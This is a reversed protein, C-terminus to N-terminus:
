EEVALEGMGLNELVTKVRPKIIAPVDKFTKYGNIILTAYIVDMEEGGKLIILFALRLKEIFNAM